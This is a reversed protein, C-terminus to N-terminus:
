KRKSMSANESRIKNVNKKCWVGQVRCPGIKGKVSRVGVEMLMWHILADVIVYGGYDTHL